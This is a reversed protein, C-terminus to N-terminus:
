YKVNIEKENNIKKNDEEDSIEENAKYGLGKRNNQGMM